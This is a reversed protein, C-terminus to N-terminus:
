LPSSRIRVSWPSGCGQSETITEAAGIAADGQMRLSRRGVEVMSGKPLQKPHEIHSSTETRARDRVKVVQRRHAWTPQEERTPESAQCTGTFVKRTCRAVSKHGWTPIPSHGPSVDGLPCSAPVPGAPSPCSQGQSGRHQGRSPEVRGLGSGSARGGRLGTCAIRHPAHRM